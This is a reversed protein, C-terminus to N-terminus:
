EIQPQAAQRITCAYFRIYMSMDMNIFISTSAFLSLIIDM